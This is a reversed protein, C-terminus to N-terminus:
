ALGCDDLFKYGGFIRPMWPFGPHVPRQFWRCQFSCIWPLAPICDRPFGPPLIGAVTMSIRNVGIDRGVIQPDLGFRKEWYRYTLVVAPPQGASDDAALLVRGAIASVGVGAFYNGSVFQGYAADTTGGATVHVSERRFRRLDSFQPVRDRLALYAPYFFSGDLNPGGPDNPYGGSHMQM